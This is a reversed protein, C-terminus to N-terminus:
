EIIVDYSGDMNITRIQDISDNAYYVVIESGDVLGYVSGIMGSGIYDHAEGLVEMAENYGLGAYLTMINDMTLDQKVPYIIEDASRASIGMPSVSAPVKIEYWAIFDTYNPAGNPTGNRDCEHPLYIAYGSNDWNIADTSGPKHGWQGNPLQRYWHYDVGPALVLAVKFFGERPQDTANIEAWNGGFYNFDKTLANEIKSKALTANSLDSMTISNGSMEGPNQGKIGFKYGTIPNVYYSLAYTYCNNYGKYTSSNYTSFMTDKESRSTPLGRHLVFTFNGSASNNYGRVKIYYTSGSNIFFRTLANTGYSGDDNSTVLNTCAQNSYIEIYTDTTGMTFACMNFSQTATFKVYGPVGAQLYYSTEFNPTMGSIAYANAPTSPLSSLARATMNLTAEMTVQEALAEDKTQYEANIVEMEADTLLTKDDIVESLLAEDVVEDISIYFDDTKSVSDDPMAYAPIYIIGSIIIITILFYFTKIKILNTKM